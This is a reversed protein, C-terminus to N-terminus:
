HIYDFDSDWNARIAITNQFFFLPEPQRKHLYNGTTWKGDRNMDGIIRIRFNGPSLNEFIVQEDKEVTREEVLNKSENLLQLIYPYPYSSTKFTFLLRGYDEVGNSTFNIKLTDNQLGFIDTFAGPLVILRYNKKSEWKYNIHYHRKVLSDNTNINLPMPVYNSDVKLSLTILSWDTKVIPHSCALQLPLYYPLMGNPSVNPGIILKFATESEGSGKGSPKGKTKVVPKSKMTLDVSDIFIGKDYVTFKLTDLHPDTLWCTLTDKTRNWEDLKWNGSLQKNFVTLNIETVPQKFYLRFQGYNDSRSKLLKQVTDTQVFMRLETHRIVEPMNLSDSKSGLTDAKQQLTDTKINLTDKEWRSTDPKYNVYQPTLLSDAFAISENPLNYKMDLDLDTLAFMKYQAKKLNNLVFNGAADTKTLYDPKRLLPASDIDSYYLIVLVGKAPDLTYADVISGRISLSDIYDGTSFAYQFGSLINNETIDHISEGFYITYTTSDKLGATLDIVISKGRVNFTFEEETPPSVVVQNILDTLDVFENFTIKIKKSTFRTTHNLPEYKKAVPPTVDKPGGSPTVINACSFAFALQFILLIIKVPKGINHLM